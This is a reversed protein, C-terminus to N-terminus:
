ARVGTSRRNWAAVAGTAGKVAWTTGGCADQPCRVRWWDMTDPMQHLVASAGCFPCPLASRQLTRLATPKV